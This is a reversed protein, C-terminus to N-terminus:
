NADRWSALAQETTMLNASHLALTKLSADLLEASTSGIADSVIVPRYGNEVADRAHSEVCAEALMGAIFLTKVELNKL